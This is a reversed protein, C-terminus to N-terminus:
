GNAAVRRRAPRIYRALPPKRKANPFAKYVDDVSVNHRRGMLMNFLIPEMVRELVSRLGRAGAGREKAIQAMARVAEHHFGLEAQGMFALKRFQKVLSSRPSVLITELDAESLEDLTAIVPLRGVLEPIM